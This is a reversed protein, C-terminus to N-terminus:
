LIVGNQLLTVIENIEENYIDYGMPDFQLEGVEIYYGDALTNFAVYNNYPRGQQKNFVNSENSSSLVPKYYTKRLEVNLLGHFGSEGSGYTIQGREIMMRERNVASSITKGASLVGGAVAIPNETVIGAVVSLGSALLGILTNLEISQREKALEQANTTLSSLKIGIQCSTSYILTQQTKNYIFMTGNGTTYDMTYYILIRSSRLQESDVKVWGVFPIYLEYVTYPEREYWKDFAPFYIDALILYPSGMLLTKHTTIPEVHLDHMEEATHFKSDDCLYNGGGVYLDANTDYANGDSNNYANNPTFPLLIASNLYSAFNSKEELAVLYRSFQYYSLFFLMEKPSATASLDPLLTGDPADIQYARIYYGVISLAIIHETQEELRVGFTTDLTINELNNAQETHVPTIYEITKVSELPYREDVIKLQNGKEESRTVLGSQLKILSAHSKLVDESLSLRTIDKSVLDVSQVFYYRKLSFIYVYNFTEELNFNEVDIVPNKVAVVNKFDGYLTGVNVLDSGVIKNVKNRKCNLRYLTLPTNLIVVHNNIFFQKTDDDSFEIHDCVIETYLHDQGVLVYTSLFVNSNYNGLGSDASDFTMVSPYNNQGYYRLYMYGGNILRSYNPLTDDIGKISTIGSIKVDKSVNYRTSDFATFDVLIKM